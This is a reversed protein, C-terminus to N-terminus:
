GKQLATVTQLKVEKNRKMKRQHIVIIVLGMMEKNWKVMRCDFNVCKNDNNDHEVFSRDKFLHM